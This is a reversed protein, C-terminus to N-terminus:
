SENILAIGRLTMLSGELKKPKIIIEYLGPDTIEVVGAEINEFEERSPTTVVECQLASGGFSIEYTNSTEGEKAQIVEIMYQGPDDIRVHWLVWAARSNWNQITNEIRNFFLGAGALLAKEADLLVELDTVEIVRPLLDSLQREAREAYGAMEADQTDEAQIYLEELFDLAAEDPIKALQQFM